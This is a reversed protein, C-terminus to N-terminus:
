VGLPTFHACYACEMAALMGAAILLWFAATRKAEGAPVGELPCAAADPVEEQGYPQLGVDEPRARLLLVSVPLMMLLSVVGFIFYGSRWGFHEIVANGIPNGIVGVFGSVAASIGVALGTKKKFWNGLIYPAPFFMLFAGALGQFAGAIYFAPCPIFFAWPSPPAPLSCRLAGWCSGPTM